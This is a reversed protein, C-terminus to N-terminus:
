ISRESVLKHIPKPKIKYMNHLLAKLKYQIRNSRKWYQEKNGWYANNRELLTLLHDIEVKTLEQKKM